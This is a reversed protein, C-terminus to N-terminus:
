NTADRHHEKVDLRNTRRKVAMVQGSGVKLVNRREPALFIVPQGLFPGLLQPTGISVRGTNLDIGILGHIQAIIPGGLDIAGCSLEPVSFNHIQGIAVDGIEAAGMSLTTGELHHVQEITAESVTVSGTDFGNATLNHVQGIVPTGLGPPGTAVGIAVLDDVGAESDLAPTGLMPLGTTLSSAVLDHVQTISPADLTVAGTSIDVSALNHIQGIETEGLEVAGASLDIGILAHTQSITAEGLTAAGTSIDAANLAHSQGILPEGLTPTGTIIEGAALVHVQGIEPAALTVAGTTIGVAELNDESSSEQLTPQGLTPAGTSIDAASLTHVQVISPNDLTPSQTSLAATTLAHIQGISPNDLTPTGATIGVATLDDTEVAEATFSRIASWSGFSNSGAPDKGRVRWYYLAADITTSTYSVREGSNFPDTDAPTEENAFGADADSKKDILVSEETVRMFADWTARPGNNVALAGDIYINGDHLTGSNNADGRAGWTNNSNRNNPVWDLIAMYREGAKLRIQNAGSFVFDYWLEDASMGSDLAVGDSIAIWGPTPTDEPAAANAPASSTGYTGAHTYLRVYATGSPSQGDNVLRYSIKKLIGGGSTFSQGIRDDVRINGQWTDGSALPQPHITLGGGSNFDTTLREGATFDSGDSIQIQYTIADDDPDTGTFELKPETTLAAEDTTNLTVTPPLNPPATQPALAIM